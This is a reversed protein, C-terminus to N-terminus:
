IPNTIIKELVTKSCPYRYPNFRDNFTNYKDDPKFEKSGYIKIAEILEDEKKLIIDYNCVNQLLKYITANKIRCYNNTSLKNLNFIDKKCVVSYNNKDLTNKDITFLLSVDSTKYANFKLTKNLLQKCNDCKFIIENFEGNINKLDFVKYDHEVCSKENLCSSMTFITIVLLIILYIKKM